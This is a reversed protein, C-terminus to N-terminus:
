ESRLALMPDVGVARRAPVACAVAAVLSMVAVGALLLLPDRADSSGWQGMMRNMAMALALGVVIGASVSGLVSAFVIRMVHMRPAGLALRIGFENM